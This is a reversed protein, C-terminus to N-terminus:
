TSFVEGCLRLSAFACLDCLFCHNEHVGLAGSFCTAADQSSQCAKIKKADKASKAGKRHIFNMSHHRTELGGSLRPHAPNRGSVNQRRRGTQSESRRADPRVQLPHPLRTQAREARRRFLGATEVMLINIHIFPLLLQLFQLLFSFAIQTHKRGFFKRRFIDTSLENFTSLM